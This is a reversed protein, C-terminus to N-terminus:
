WMVSGSYLNKIATLTLFRTLQLENQNLRKSKYFILFFYLREEIEGLASAEQYHLLMELFHATTKPYHVSSQYQVAKCLMTPNATHWGM